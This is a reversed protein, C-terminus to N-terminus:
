TSPSPPPKYNSGSNGISPARGYAIDDFQKERLRLEAAVGRVFAKAVLIDQATKARLVKGTTFHRDLVTLLTRLSADDGKNVKEVAEKILTERLLEGALAFRQRFVPQYVWWRRFELWSVDGARLADAVSANEVLATLFESQKRNRRIRQQLTRAM